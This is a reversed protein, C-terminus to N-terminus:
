VLELAREDSWGLRLRALVRSYNLGLTEVAEALSMQRGHVTVWRTDSRNRRQEKLTAWRCNGPEYDGDNDIRDLSHKQSPRKGMDSFFNEFKCWRECVKIGRGGYDKYSRSRENNCRTNM